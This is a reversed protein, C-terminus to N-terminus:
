PNQNGNFIYKFNLYMEAKQDFPVIKSHLENNLNM